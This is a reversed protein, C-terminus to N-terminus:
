IKTGDELEFGLEFKVGMIEAIKNLDSENFNNKKLKKSLNPQTVGMETALQTLTWGKKILLFRIKESAMNKVGEM